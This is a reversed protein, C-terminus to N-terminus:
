DGLRFRSLMQVESPWPTFAFRNGRFWGAIQFDKKAHKSSGRIRDGFLYFLFPVPLFGCGLLGLLTSAWVHGIRDYILAAILVFAAGCICRLFNNGALVSAAHDPYTDLLYNLISIFLSFGDIRFPGSGLIPVNWHVQLDARWGFVFLSIPILWCGTM